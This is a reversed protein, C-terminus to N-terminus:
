LRYIYNGLGIKNGLIEIGEERLIATKTELPRVM